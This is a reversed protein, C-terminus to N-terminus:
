NDEVVICKGVIDHFARNFPDFVGVLMGAYFFMEDFNRVVSRIFSRLHNPKEFTEVDICKIKVAMKGITKGYMVIFVYHYITYAIFIFIFLQNTLLTIEELTKANKFADFFAIFILFSILFDDITMAIARKAISAVKLNNEKLKSELNNKFDEM